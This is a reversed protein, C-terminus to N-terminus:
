FLTLQPPKYDGWRFLREVREEIEHETTIRGFQLITRKEMVCSFGEPAEYESVVVTHGDETLSRVKLWFADHNFPSLGGYELTGAYPPDCYILMEEEPPNSEIFDACFLNINRVQLINAKREESRINMGFVTPDNVSDCYGAFWKGRFSLAFGYYGIEADSFGNDEGYVAQARALQYKERTSQPPTWGEQRAIWMAMLYPHADSAYINADRINMRTLIHGAGMFPEWYSQKPKRVNALYGVVEKAINGKGGVYRM